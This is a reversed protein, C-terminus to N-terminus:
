RNSTASYTCVDSLKGAASSAYIEFHNMFIYVEHNTRHTYGSATSDSM